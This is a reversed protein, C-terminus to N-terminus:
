VLSQNVNDVYDDGGAAFFTPPTQGTIHTRIDPNLEFKKITM